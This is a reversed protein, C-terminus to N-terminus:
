FALLELFFHDGVRRFLPQVFVCVDEFGYDFESAMGPDVISGPVQPFFFNCNAIPKDPVVVFQFNGGHITSASMGAAM